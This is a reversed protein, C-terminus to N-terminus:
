HVPIKKMPPANVNGGKRDMSKKMVIDLDSLLISIVEACTCIYLHNRYLNISKPQHQSLPVKVSQHSLPLDLFSTSLQLSIDWAYLDGKSSIAYLISKSELFASDIINM